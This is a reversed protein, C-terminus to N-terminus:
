KKEKTNTTIEGFSFRAGMNVQYTINRKGGFTKEIDFYVRWQEDILLNSAVTILAKLDNSISQHILFNGDNLYIPDSTNIRESVLSAGVRLDASFKGQTKFTYGIVGGARLYLSHVSELGGIIQKNAYIGLNIDEVGQIYGYIMEVQPELYFDSKLIYAQYGVELGLSLAHNGFNTKEGWTPTLAQSIYLYKFISDIYLGFDAIYSDYLAIGYTHNEGKYDDGTLDVISTSLAVGLYNKGRLAEFSYDYGLQINTYLNKLGEGSEMGNFIRIWSGQPYPNNRLDGMRKNLNNSEILLMYYPNSIIANSENIIDTNNEAVLSSLVWQQQAQPDFNEETVQEWKGNLSIQHEINTSLIMLGEKDKRSSIKANGQQAQILVLPSNQTDLNLQKIKTDKLALSFTGRIEQARIQDLSSNALNQTDINSGLLIQGNDGTLMGVDLKRSLTNRTTSRPASALDLNFNSATNNIILNAVRSDATITWKAQNKFSFNPLTKTTDILENEQIALNFAGIVSINGQDLGVLTPSYYGLLDQMDMSLYIEKNALNSFDYVSQDSGKLLTVESGESFKLNKILTGSIIGRYSVNDFFLTPTLDSINKDVDIDGQITSNYFRFVGLNAQSINGSKQLRVGQLFESNLTGVTHFKYSSQSTGESIKLHNFGGEVANKGIFVIDKHASGKIAVDGNEQMPKLVAYGSIKTNDSSGTSVLNAYGLEFSAQHEGNEDFWEKYAINRTSNFVIDVSNGNPEVSDAGTIESYDENIDGKISIGRLGLYGVAFKSITNGRRTLQSNIADKLGNKTLILYRDNDARDSNEFLGTFIYRSQNSRNQIACSTECGIPLNSSGNNFNFILYQNTNGNWILDPNEEVNVFGVVKDSSLIDIAIGFTPLLIALCFSACYNQFFIKEILCGEPIFISKCIGFTPFKLSILGHNYRLIKIKLKLVTGCGM